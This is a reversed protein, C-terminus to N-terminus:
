SVLTVASIGVIVSLPPVILGAASTARSKVFGTTYVTVEESLEVFSYVTVTVTAALGALAIVSNPKLANSGTTVPMTFSSPLVIERVTGNPVSIVARIEINVIVPTVTM